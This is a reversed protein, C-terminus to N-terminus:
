CDLVIMVALYMLMNNGPHIRETTLGGPIIAFFTQRPFIVFWLVKKESIFESPIDKKLAYTTM